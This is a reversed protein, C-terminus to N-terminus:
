KDSLIGSIPPVILEGIISTEPTYDQRFLKRWCVIMV